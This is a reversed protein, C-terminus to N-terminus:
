ASLNDSQSKALSLYNFLEKFTNYSYSYEGTFLNYIYTPASQPNFVREDIRMKSSTDQVLKDLLKQADKSLPNDM